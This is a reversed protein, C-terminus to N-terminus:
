GAEPQNSHARAVAAAIKNELLRLNHAKEGEPDIIGLGSQLLIDDFPGTIKVGYVAGLGEETTDKQSLYWAVVPVVVTWFFLISVILYIRREMKKNEAEKPPEPILTEIQHIERLDYCKEKVVLSRNTIFVENEAYVLTEDDEIFELLIQTNRYNLRASTGGCDVKDTSLIRYDRIAQRLEAISYPGSPDGKRSVFFRFPSTESTQTM